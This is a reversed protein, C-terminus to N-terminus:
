VDSPIRCRTLHKFVRRALYIVLQLKSPQTLCIESGPVHMSFARPDSFWGGSLLVSEKRPKAVGFFKVWKRPYRTADASRVVSRCWPCLAITFRYCEVFLMRFQRRGRSSCPQAALNRVLFRLGPIGARAGGDRDTHHSLSAGTRRWTQPAKTAHSGTDPM